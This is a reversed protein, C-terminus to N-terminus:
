KIEEFVYKDPTPCELMCFQIFCDKCLSMSGMLGDKGPKIEKVVVSPKNTCRKMPPIPGLTMFSYPGGERKDAQCQELDAPKLDEQKLEKKKARPM